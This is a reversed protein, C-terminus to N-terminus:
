QRPEAWSFKQDEIEDMREEVTKRKLSEQYKRKVEMLQKQSCQYCQPRAIAPKYMHTKMEGDTLIDQCQYCKMKLLNM